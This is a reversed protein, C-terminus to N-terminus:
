LRRFTNKSGSRINTRRKTRGSRAEGELETRQRGKEMGAGFKHVNRDIKNRTPKKTLVSTPGGDDYLSNGEGSTTPIFSFEVGGGSILRVNDKSTSPVPISSSEKSQQLEGFSANKDRARDTETLSRSPKAVVMKPQSRATRQLASALGESDRTNTDRGANITMLETPYICSRAVCSWKM